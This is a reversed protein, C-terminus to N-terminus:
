RKTKARWEMWEDMSMQDPDKVASENSGIPKIPDPANSIKNPQPVELKAEILALERAAHIPNLRSLQDAVEINTALHYTLATAKDSEQILGILEQDMRHTIDTFVPDNMKEMFGEYQTMETQIREAFKEARQQALQQQEALALQQEKAKSQQELKEAAKAALYDAQQELYQNYDDFDEEKPAKLPEPKNQEELEKLRKELAERQRREEYKERTLQDIRKQVGTKKEEQEEPQADATTEDTTSSEVLSNVDQNEGVEQGDPAVSEAMEESM